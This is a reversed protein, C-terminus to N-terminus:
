EIVRDARLLVSSRSAVIRAALEAALEASDNAWRPEIVVGSGDALGLEQLGARLQDLFQRADREPSTALWAIRAAPQQQGRALSAVAGLAVSM